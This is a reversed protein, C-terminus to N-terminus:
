PELSCMSVLAATSNTSVHAARGADIRPQQRGQYKGAGAGADLAQALLQASREWLAPEVLLRADLWGTVGQRTRVHV